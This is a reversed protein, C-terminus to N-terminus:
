SFLLAVFHLENNDNLLFDSVCVIGYFMHIDYKYFERSVKVVPQTAM